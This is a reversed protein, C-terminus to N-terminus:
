VETSYATAAFSNCSTVQLQTAVLLAIMFRLSHKVRTKCTICTAQILIYNTIKNSYNIILCYILSFVYLYLGLIRSYQLKFTGDSINLQGTKRCDCLDYQTVVTSYLYYSLQCFVCATCVIFAYCTESFNWLINFFENYKVRAHSTVCVCTLTIPRCRLGIRGWHVARCWAIHSWSGSRSQASCCCGSRRSLWGSESSSKSRTSSVSCCSSSMVYGCGGCGGRCCTLPLIALDNLDLNFDFNLM